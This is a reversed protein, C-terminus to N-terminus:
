NFFSCTRAGGRLAHEFCEEVSELEVAPEGRDRWVMRKTQRLAEQANALAVLNEYSQKFQKRSQSSLPTFNLNTLNLFSSQRSPRESKSVEGLSPYITSDDRHPSSTDDIRIHIHHREAVPERSPRTPEDSPSSM